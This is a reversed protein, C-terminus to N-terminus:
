RPVSPWASDDIQERLIDAHGAHRATEEILHVLIVRLSDRQAEGPNPNAAPTSLDVRLVDTAAQQDFAASARAPDPCEALVADLHAPFQEAYIAQRDNLEVLLSQWDLGEPGSNV